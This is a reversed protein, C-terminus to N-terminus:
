YVDAERQRRLEDRRKFILWIIVAGAFLWGWIFKWFPFSYGAELRVGLEKELLDLYDKDLPFVKYGDKGEQYLSIGMDTRASFPLALVSFERYSYGLMPKGPSDLETMFRPQGPMPRDKPLLIGHTLFREFKAHDANAPLDAIKTMMPMSTMLWSRGGMFGAAVWAALILFFIAARISM